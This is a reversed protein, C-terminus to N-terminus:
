SDGGDGDDEGDFPNGLMQNFFNNLSNTFNQMQEDTEFVDNGKTIVYVTKGYGDVDTVQVAIEIDVNKHVNIIVGRKIKRSFLDENGDIWDALFAHEPHIRFSFTTAKIFGGVMASINEIAHIMMSNYTIKRGTDHLFQPIEDHEELASMVINGYLEDVKYIVRKKTQFDGDLLNNM